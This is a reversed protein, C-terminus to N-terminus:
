KNPLNTQFFNILKEEFVIPDVSYLPYHFAGDILYLEKPGDYEAYLRESNEVRMLTDETGHIFLIPRPAIADVDEIPAVQDIDVGAKQSGFFIVLPAFPFPPLNALTRVGDEVNDRISTLCAEAVLVDIEPFRGTARLSTICGLSQGVIGFHEANVDSRTELYDIAGEVDNIEVFGLTTTEGDSDGHGRLEMLFAGYGQQVLLNAQELLGARNSTLGHM